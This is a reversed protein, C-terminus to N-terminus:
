RSFGCAITFSQTANVKEGLVVIRRKASDIEIALQNQLDVSISNLNQSMTNVIVNFSKALEISAFAMEKVAQCDSQKIKVENSLAPTACLTLACLLTTQYRSFAMPMVSLVEKASM